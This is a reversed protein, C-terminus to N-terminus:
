LARDACGSVRRPSGGVTVRAVFDDHEKNIGDIGPCKEAKAEEGITEFAQEINKVHQRTEELHDGFGQALEEDPQTALHYERAGM